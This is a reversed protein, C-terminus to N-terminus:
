ATIPTTGWGMVTMTRHKLRIMPSPISRTPSGMATVTPTPNTPYATAMWIPIASTEWLIVISIKRAPTQTPPATTAPTTLATPTQTVKVAPIWLSAELPPPLSSGLRIAWGPAWRHPPLRTRFKSERRRAQGYLHRELRYLQYQCDDARLRGHPRGLGWPCLRRPDSHEAPHSRHTSGHVRHDGPAPEPKRFRPLLHRRANRGDNTFVNNLSADWGLDVSWGQVGAADVQFQVGFVLTDGVTLDDCVGNVITGARTGPVGGTCPTASATSTTSPGGAPTRTGNPLFILDVSTAQATGASLLLVLLAFKRM